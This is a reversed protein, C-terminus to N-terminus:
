TGSWRKFFVIWILFAVIGCILMVHFCSIGSDSAPEPVADPHRITPNVASEVYSDSYMLDPDVGPPTYTPDRPVKQAELQRVRGELASDRALMDRYRFQDMMGYHNYAWYARTDLSQALLWWWFMNAYPDRYVVVPANPPPSTDRFVQDARNSRTSWRDWNTSRRLQDVRADSPNIPRSEGKSDQYTSRSPGPQYTPTSDERRPPAGSSYSKGRPSPTNWTSTKGVPNNRPQGANAGGPPM